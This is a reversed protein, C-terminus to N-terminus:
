NMPLITKLITFSRKQDILYIYDVQILLLGFIVTGIKMKSHVAGAGLSFPNDPNNHYSTFSENFRNFKNLGGQNTGVWITGLHDIFLSNIYSDSLSTSDGPNDLYNKFNYGDYRSLGSQTGIWLFGDDDQVFCLGSNHSLGEKITLHKFELSQSHVNSIRLIILLFVLTINIELKFNM